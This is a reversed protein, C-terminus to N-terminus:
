VLHGCLFQCVPLNFLHFHSVVLVNYAVYDDSCGVSLVASRAVVVTRLLDHGQLVDLSDLSDDLFTLFGDM